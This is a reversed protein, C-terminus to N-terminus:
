SQQSATVHHMWCVKLLRIYTQINRSCFDLILDAQWIKTHIQQVDALKFLVGVVYSFILLVDLFEEILV